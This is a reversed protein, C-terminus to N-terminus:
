FAKKRVERIQVEGEANEDSVIVHTADLPLKGEEDPRAAEGRVLVDRVYRSSSDKTEPADEAPAQPAPRAGGKKSKKKM